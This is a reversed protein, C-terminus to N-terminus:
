GQMYNLLRLNLENIQLNCLIYLGGNCFRNYSSIGEVAPPSVIFYMNLVHQQIILISDRDTWFLTRYFHPPMLIQVPVLFGM